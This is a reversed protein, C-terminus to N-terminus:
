GGFDFKQEPAYAFFDGCIMDYQGNKDACASALYSRAEAVGTESLDMGISFRDPGALAAVDYGRGCGPVLSRGVKGESLLQQLYAHVNSIDFREGPKIGAKWMADWDAAHASVPDAM